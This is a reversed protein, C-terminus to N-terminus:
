APGDNVILSYYLVAGICGVEFSSGDTLVIHIDGQDNNTVEKITKGVLWAAVTTGTITNIM